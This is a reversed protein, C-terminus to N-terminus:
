WVEKQPIFTGNNNIINQLIRILREESTLIAHFKKIAISTGTKLNKPRPVGVFSYEFAFEILRLQYASFLGKLLTFYKASYQRAYLYQEVTVGNFRVAKALFLAGVACVECPGLCVDRLQLNSPLGGFYPARISYVYISTKPILAGARIWDIADECVAIRKQEVTMSNFKKDTKDTKQTSTM